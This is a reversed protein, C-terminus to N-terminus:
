YKINFEIQQQGISINTNKDAQLPVAVNNRLQDENLKPSYVQMTAQNSNTINFNNVANQDYSNSNRNFYNGNAGSYSNNDLGKGGISSSENALQLNGAGSEARHSCFVNHARKCYWASGSSSARKQTEPPLSFAVAPNISSETKHNPELFDPIFDDMSLAYVIPLCMFGLILVRILQM